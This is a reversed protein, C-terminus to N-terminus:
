NCVVKYFFTCYLPRGFHFKVNDWLCGVLTRSFFLMALAGRVRFDIKEGKFTGHSLIWVCSNAQDSDMDSVVFFDAKFIAVSVQYAIHTTNLNHHYEALSQLVPLRREAFPGTSSTPPTRNIPPNFLLDCFSRKTADKHGPCVTATLLSKEDCHMGWHGWSCDRLPRNACGRSTGTSALRGCQDLSPLVTTPAPPQLLCSEDLFGVRFALDACFLSRREHYKFATLSFRFSPPLPPVV